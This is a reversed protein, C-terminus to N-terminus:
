KLLRQFSTLIKAAVSILNSSHNWLICSPLIKLERCGKLNLNVLGTLNNISSPLEKIATESLSLWKLKKMVEAIEPFKDLNQCGSLDLQKLSEMSICSPLIKLERCGEFDLTVLGTLNNISSPLEKIATEDLYLNTLKGMVKSIEPFEALNSCGSLDLQELSEMSICSPLIKLERCGKLNLTVLRTLNNISSPLEKIATESLSLWKLKKMVEAIEPFKDLNQCGSLYLQKLSEMSICSPLIKLERCGELDLTVLGTLNNISSPLEKIATEDLYLNTLKGMVKSIEPFEALNSCGSLDLQELSEMSICSPLIKLERCGKLNLTVLGTLNNISSPLEKIATEDLYLNTLKGMVRSIEPFEALNSCGSLDLQELSEMSICSPLIKLERCGELDLTVLGTLNNISSPLEKIATEDLYLNTLKGMVKSIEPFEALNSCGSLDLQELSEMSICSPLFKLERCGKLNLTVLGTLNNISSPLEKIATEDLYLNTLKGMVESIEPFEVLNSCGSLLLTKLSEMSICNPLIKLEKCGKLNLTVLGTLNNISSPIEKIATESLSLWTLKKMVEAIEPFKDLNQCSCLDLQELSEMFICSPLIKLERCGKLYLSVFGTLNNISSPLEKIATEDLYLNTLKGIVESIEPFEVLNSCGSLLLTKLSEMSICNPLIKLEKCGKLNLTVLGTLNNISSPLEKIATESLSLWKLKKMVEAIEPFKDLNQCGSLDLLKLSEMSICSPLIKLERCGKLNLTFLGTLNNISSPLEKIATESLSLWKLKKMVEAIEPFKDLNQCGSLDLQKLSEMSICSPLFKLERCGKLNLTVLRTLNNISSPLDKIATEDLYLNTLKGMVESIEPFEALNSCGSLDLTKLSEMSICNPLIKLEKCGKLDLSVLGTLNNISSPLEKIATESLSLWTLKKMVEANEPFKDLNQCGSLDLQELSEMFICSPLIKLERCGKLYLSVLGTLNNISSPLEKIATENLSLWTLKKMVKAIEPFKDLNQCGSLDLQKLSEMSISRSFIKLKKCGSSSLTLLNQLALISPHVEFLSSCGDLVLRELNIAERLDPIKVLYKCYSLLIVKLKKMQTIGEWLQQIRSGRMDLRVLNIPEFNSPLSNLPCGHWLLIRLEHSLSEFNGTGHQKCGYSPCIDESDFYDYNNHKYLISDFSYCIMLLRLKPMRGFARTDIRLDFESNSLDLVIREVAETATSQTLVCDVDELSWLRSRGRDQCVMERGMDQLLDHMDIVYECNYGYSMTILARDVLVSLGMDPFYGCSDLVETVVDKDVGRFFCAIDLFSNKESDDLGEISTKLVDMIGIHPIKKLKDLLVEWQRETRNYLSAGLVKLALPLGQAYEIARKSLDNYDGTTQNERFAYKRFLELAEDDSLCEPAYLEDDESLSQKNRTTIIIRSGDGFSHPDGLLDRIHAVTEVDDLVVLVKKMRLREMIMNRGRNLDVSEVKEKLLRCLLEEQMKVERKNIFAEKVNDLFCKHEFQGAIEDYVARAITTKGIGGMGWIGVVGVDNVGRCLRLSVETIHSDMGVLDNAPNSPRATRIWKKFTNEVIGEILKIDDKCRGGSSSSSGAM